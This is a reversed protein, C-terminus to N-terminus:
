VISSADLSRRLLDLAAQAAREKARMRDSEFRFKRTTIGKASSLAIWVTGLPAREDGGTPGLYGTTALGFTSGWKKRVGDAMARAIEESVAGNKQLLESSIGLELQKLENQYLVLSGQLVESCGPIQTLRHAILGGTCSEALALKSRKSKLATLIVEEITSPDFGFFDEGCLRRLEESLGDFEASANSSLSKMQLRLKVQTTSPLFALTVNPNARIKQVFPDL